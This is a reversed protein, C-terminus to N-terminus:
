ITPSCGRRDRVKLNGSNGSKILCEQLGDAMRKSSTYFIRFGNCFSGDGICFWELFTRISETTANRVEDPVFKVLATGFQKLYGVLESQGFIEFATGSKWVSYRFGIRDLLGKVKERESETVASIVISKGHSGLCGEALYIGMFAFWDSTRGNDDGNWRCTRQIRIQSHNPLDRVQILRYPRFITKKDRVSVVSVWMYHNDTVAIDIARNKISSIPGNYRYEFKNVIKQFELYGTRQNLTAVEEDSGIEDFLKWGKTTLIETKDDYCGMEKVNAGVNDLLGKKTGTGTAWEAVGSLAAVPAGLTMLGRKLM